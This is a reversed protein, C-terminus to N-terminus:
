VSRWFWDFNVASHEFIPGFATIGQEEHLVTLLGMEIIIEDNWVSILPPMCHSEKAMIEIDQSGFLEKECTKQRIDNPTDWM